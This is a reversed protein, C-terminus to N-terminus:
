ITHCCLIQANKHKGENESDNFFLSAKFYDYWANELISLAYVLILILWYFKCYLLKSLSPKHELKTSSLRSITLKQLMFDMQM